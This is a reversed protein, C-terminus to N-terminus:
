LLEDAGIDWAAPPPTPRTQGDYDTALLPRDALVASSGGNIASSIHYNTNRNPTYRVSISNGGEDLVIATLLNNLFPTVFPPTVSINSGDYGTTDTLLCNTPSMLGTIGFVQLDWYGGTHGLDALLGGKGGNQAANWYWSRNHWIINNVLTPNSFDPDILLSAAVLGASHIGSVIGAGEPTSVTLSDPPFASAATSTSDNNAITNNIIEV